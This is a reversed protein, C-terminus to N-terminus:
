SKWVGVLELVLSTLGPPKIFIDVNTLLKDQNICIAFQINLVVWINTHVIHLM